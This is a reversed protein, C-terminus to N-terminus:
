FFQEKSKRLIHLLCWLLLLLSEEKCRDGTTILAKLLRHNIYSESSGTDILIQVGVGNVTGEVVSAKLCKPFGAFISSVIPDYTSASTKIKKKSRCVRSFDGIKGCSFCQIDKAPCRDRNDFFGGCFFCTKSRFNKKMSPSTSTSTPPIQYEQQTIDHGIDQNTALHKARNLRTAHKQAQNLSSTLDLSRHLTIDDQELLQQRISASELGKIIADRIMNQQHTQADVAEFDSDKAPRRLDDLIENISEGPLQTRLQTSLLHRAMVKNRPKIYARELM